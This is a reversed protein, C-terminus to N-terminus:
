ELREHAPNLSQSIWNLGNKLFLLEQVDRGPPEIHVRTIVYDTRPNSVNVTIKKALNTERMWKFARNVSDTYDNITQIDVIARKQVQSFDSGIRKSEERELINGWYGNDTFLSIQAASDLGMDMIPQGGIFKMRAGNKTIKIAPDGQFRNM